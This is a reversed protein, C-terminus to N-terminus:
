VPKRVASEKSKYEPDYNSFGLKKLPCELYPYDLKLYDAEKDTIPNDLTSGVASLRAGARAGCSCGNCFHFQQRESYRRRECPAQKDGDGHCALVRMEKYAKDVRKTTM